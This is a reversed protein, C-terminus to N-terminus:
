VISNFMASFAMLIVISIVGIVLMLLYTLISEKM